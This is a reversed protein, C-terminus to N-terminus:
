EGCGQPSVCTVLIGLVMPGSLWLVGALTAVVAGRGQPVGWHGVGRHWGGLGPCPQCGVRGPWTYRPPGPLGPLAPCRGRHVPARLSHLGLVSRSAPLPTCLPVAGLLWPGHCLCPEGSGHSPARQSM